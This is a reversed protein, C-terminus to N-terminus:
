KLKNFYWNVFDYETKFWILFFLKIIFDETLLNPNEHFSSSFSASTGLCSSSLSFSSFDLFFFSGLRVFFFSVCTGRIGIGADSHGM